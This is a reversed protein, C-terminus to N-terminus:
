VFCVVMDLYVLCVVVCCWCVLKVRILIIIVIMSMVM